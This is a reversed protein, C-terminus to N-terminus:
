RIFPRSQSSIVISKCTLKVDIKPKLPTAGLVGAPPDSAAPGGLWPTPGGLGRPPSLDGGCGGVHLPTCNEQPICGALVLIESDPLFDPEM